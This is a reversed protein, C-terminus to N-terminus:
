RSNDPRRRNYAIDNELGRITKNVEQFQRWHAVESNSHDDLQKQLTANQEKLVAVEYQVAQIDQRLAYYVSVISVVAFTIQIADKLTLRIDEARMNTKENERDRLEGHPASHRDAVVKDPDIHPTVGPERHQSLLRHLVWARKVTDYRHSISPRVPVELDDRSLAVSSEYYFGDPTLYGNMSRGLAALLRM